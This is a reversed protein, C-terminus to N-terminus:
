TFSNSLIYEIQSQSAKMNNCLDTIQGYKKGPLIRHDPYVM